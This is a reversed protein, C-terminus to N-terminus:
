AATPGRKQRRRQEQHRSRLNGSNGGDEPAM